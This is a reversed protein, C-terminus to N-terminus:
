KAEKLLVIPHGDEHTRLEFNSALVPAEVNLRQYILASVTRMELDGTIAGRLSLFHRLARGNATFVLKTETANPLISRAASRISRHAEKSSPPRKIAATSLDNSISQYGRRLQDILQLWLEKLKPNIKVEEPIVFKASTEDHYQQSLQSFSFGVRHRVFQHSFARSVGTLLFTWSAHELVSEHGQKILNRVYERNSKPSQREGFSLYCIRGAFEIIEEADKANASRKWETAEDDLFRDMERVDLTPRSLIYLRPGSSIAGLLSDPFRAVLAKTV